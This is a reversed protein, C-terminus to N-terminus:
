VALETLTFSQSVKTLTPLSADLTAQADPQTRTACQLSDRVSHCAPSVVLSDNSAQEGIRRGMPVTCVRQLSIMQSGM